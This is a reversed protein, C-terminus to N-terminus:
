RGIGGIAQDVIAKDTGADMREAILQGAAKRAAEAATARLQDIASREEAAIKEEAMRTRREVLAEADTKAKTVIESAEGQARELMAAAEADASSAKAEYEAKLAEAEKRLNEAEELQGRIAAIKRDLAAGIAGPVKKMLLIAFVFLMALAVWGGANFGFVSPEAHEGGAPNHEVTATTQPNTM